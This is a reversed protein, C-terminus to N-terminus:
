VVGQYWGFGSPGARNCGAKVYAHLGGVSASEFCTCALILTTPSFFYFSAGGNGVAPLLPPQTKQNQKWVRPAGCMPQKAGDWLDAPLVHNVQVESLQCFHLNSNPSMQLCKSVNPSIQLCKSVNPSIQLCKSVNSSM